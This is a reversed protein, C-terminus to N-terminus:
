QKTAFDQTWYYNSGQLGMGIEKFRCNLINDRHHQSNMWANMVADATSFGYAVNEGWTSWTYGEATIRQGADTGGRGDHRMTQTEDQWVSHKQAAVDLKANRTVAMCGVKAREQNVLVVVRDFTANPTPATTAPATTTPQATTTTPRPTTTTPRPTTTTPRPTTTTPRPTTTTARVTTTTTPMNHPPAPTKPTKLAIEAVAADSTAPAGIGAPAPAATTQTLPGGLFLVALAALASVSVVATRRGRPRQGESPTEPARRRLHM